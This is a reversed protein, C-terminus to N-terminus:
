MRNGALCAWPLLATYAPRGPFSVATPPHLRYATLCARYINATHSRSLSPLVQYQLVRTGCLSAAALVLTKRSAKEFLCAPRQDALRLWRGLWDCGTGGAGYRSAGYKEWFYTQSLRRNRV